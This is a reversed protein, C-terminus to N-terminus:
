RAAEPRFELKVAKPVHPVPDPLPPPNGVKAIRIKTVTIPDLPRGTRTSTKVESIRQVVDLGSVVMGFCPYNRTLFPTTWPTIVFKAGSIRNGTSRIMGLRGPASFDVPGDGEHPVYVPASYRGTDSREGLEIRESAIARSVLQGDYYPEHRPEGSVPDPWGLRGDALAAFHAVSQPAQDPLLRAVITGMSTEIRAYWGEQLNKPLPVAEGAVPSTPSLSYPAAAPPAAPPAAGPDGVAGGSLVLIAVVSAFLSRASTSM